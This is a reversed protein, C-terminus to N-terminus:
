MGTPITLQLGVQIAPLDINVSPEKSQERFLTSLRYQAYVAILDYGVRLRVGYDWPNIYNNQSFIRIDTLNKERNVNKLRNYFNWSGYVGMDLFVGYGFISGPCLRFRQYFELQLSSVRLNQRKWTTCEEAGGYAFDRVSFWAAGIELSTGLSYWKCINGKFRLGFSFNESKGYKVSYADPPLQHSPVAFGWTMFPAFNYKGSVSNKSLKEKQTNRSDVVNKCEQILHATKASNQSFIASDAASLRFTYVADDYWVRVTKRLLAQKNLILHHESATIQLSLYYDLIHQENEIHFALMKSNRESNESADLTADEVQITVTSDTEVFQIAHAKKKPTTKPHVFYDAQPMGYGYTYDFYPYRDASKEIEAKMQMATMQPRTQWACAAFGAVLPSSFSTGSAKGWSNDHRPMAVTATGFACVNPKLRGDTTPGMSTFSSPSKGDEDIGGVSIIKDADAPTILTRWTPDDGENGMSNCVLIGKDAAINAARSVVSTQGDMDDVNYRDKGYGLSSNIIDAGNQDAWEMAQMWWVEEKAPELDIETRALLFEAGTALGLQKGDDIGAICSLVMTGHSNWGYVNEKKNPFNYTKIIQHNERLHRFASHTDVNPFGGDLVAIRKGKGNIGNEVFLNGGMRLLQPYLTATDDPPLFRESVDTQAPQAEARILSVQKVFPLREIEEIRFSAVAVANLWRSMGIVEESLDAITNVYQENLPFDTSDYLSLGKQLRRDIAKADFYAYPDFHTNAKNTLFVWYIDQANSCFYTSLCIIVFLIKKM